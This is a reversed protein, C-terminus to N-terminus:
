RAVIELASIRYQGDVIQFTATFTIPEVLMTLTTPDLEKARNKDANNYGTADTVLTITGDANEQSTSVPNAEIWRKYPEENRAPESATKIWNELSTENSKQMNTVYTVLSPIEQWNAVFTSSIMLEANEAAVTQIVALDGGSAYYADSNETTAGMMEWASLHGEIYAVGLEDPTLTSPMVLSEATVPPTEVATESPTSSPEPAPSAEPAPTSCGALLGVLLLGSAISAVTLRSRSM